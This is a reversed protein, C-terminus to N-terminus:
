PFVEIELDVGLEGLIKLTQSKITGGNNKAGALQIYISSTGGSQVIDEVIKRYQILKGVLYMVPGVFGKTISFDQGSTWASNRYVGPLPEGKLTTRPTGAVWSNRCPLGLASTLFNLDHTPHIFRLSVRGTLM